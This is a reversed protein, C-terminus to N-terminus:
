CGLALRLLALAPQELVMGRASPLLSCQGEVATANGNSNKEGAQGVFDFPPPDQGRLM